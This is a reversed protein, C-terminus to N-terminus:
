NPATPAAEPQRSLSHIEGNFPADKLVLPINREIWVQLHRVPLLIRKPKQDAGMREEWRVLPTGWRM